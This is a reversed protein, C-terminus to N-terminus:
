PKLDDPNKDWDDGYMKRMMEEEEKQQAETGWSSYCDCEKCRDNHFFHPCLECPEAAQHYQPCRLGAPGNEPDNGPYRMVLKKGCEPCFGKPMPSQYPLGTVPNHTMPNPPVNAYPDDSVGMIEQAREFNPFAGNPNLAKALEKFESESLGLEKAPTSNAPTNHMINTLAKMAEGMANDERSKLARILANKNAEKVLIADIINSEEYFGKADLDNAIKILLQIESATAPLKKVIKFGPAKPKDSMIKEAKPLPTVDPRKPKEEWWEPKHPAEKIGVYVEIDNLTNEWQARDSEVKRIEDLVKVRDEKTANSMSLVKQRLSEVKGPLMALYTQIKDALGVGLEHASDENGARKFNQFARHLRLLVNEMKAFELERELNEM